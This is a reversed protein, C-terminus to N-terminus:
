DSEVEETTTTSTHSKAQIRASKEIAAPLLMSEWVPIVENLNAFMRDQRSGYQVYEWWKRHALKETQCILLKFIMAEKFEPSEAGKTQAVKFVQAVEPKLGKSRSFDSNWCEKNFQQFSLFSAKDQTYARGCTVDIFGIVRGPTLGLKSKSEDCGPLPLVSSSSRVRHSQGAIEWVGNCIVHIMCGQLITGKTEPFAIGRFEKELQAIPGTSGYFLGKMSYILIVALLVFAIRTTTVDQPRDM